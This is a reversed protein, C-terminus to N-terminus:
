VSYSGADGEDEGAELLPRIRDALADVLPPEWITVHDGAITVSTLDTTLSALHAWTKDDDVRVLLTPVDSPLVTHDLIAATLIRAFAQYRALRGSPPGPDPEPGPRQTHQHDHLGDVLVLRVDRGAARLLRASEQAAYCGASRGIIVIKGDPRLQSAHTVIRSAIADITRDPAGATHMGHAEIVHLPHDPGLARAFAHIKIAGGGAGQIVVIPDGDGEPNFTVVDSDRATVGDRMLGALQAITPNELLDPVTLEPSGADNIAMVLEAAGLSDLGLDWLNEDVGLTDLGADIELIDRLTVLLLRQFHGVPPKAQNDRWPRLPLGRLGARDIKGREDVPLADHRMLFAPVLHDPLRTALEARISAASARSALELQVHGVLVARGRSSTRPIVAAAHVGAISRLVAEPQSPDVLRGRIKVQADLRGLLTFVGDPDRRVIDGNRWCRRGQDDIFFRAATLEPDDLYGLAVDGHVVLEGIDTGPEPELDRVADLAEIGDVSRLQMREPIISSGLPRPGAHLHDGARHVTQALEIAESAGYRVVLNADPRLVRAIDALTSGEVREAGTVFTEVEELIEGPPMADAVREALSTVLGLHAIREDRIRDILQAPTLEAPRLLVLTRGLSLALTRHIGAIFNLPFVHSIRSAPPGVRLFEEDRGRILALNEWPHVVGKARGTSGSTFTVFAEVQARNRDDPLPTAIRELLRQTEDPPLDRDIPAFPLGLRICAHLGIMSDIDIRVFLPHFRGAAPDVTDRLFASREEVLRDFEGFSLQVPGDIVATRDPDTRAWARLEHAPDENVSLLM